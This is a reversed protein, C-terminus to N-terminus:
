DVGPVPGFVVQGDSSLMISFRAGRVWILGLVYGVQRDVEIIEEVALREHLFVDDDPKVKAHM